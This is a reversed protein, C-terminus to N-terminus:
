RWASLVTSNILMVILFFSSNLWWFKLTQRQYLTNGITTLTTFGFWLIVASLIGEGINTVALSHLVLGLVYAQLLSSVVVFIIARTVENKPTKMMNVGSLKSWLKGFGAPSYWFTGVMVSIIWAVVIAFYNLGNFDIM